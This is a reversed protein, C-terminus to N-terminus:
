GNVTVQAIYATGNAGALGNNVGTGGAVNATVNGSTAGYFVFVLGGGGGGGGPLGSGGLGGVANISGSVINYGYVVVEGGGGGGGGGSYGGGGGGAGYMYALPTVYIPPRGVASTIWWDSLGQLIYTVMANPSSFSNITVNGGAGAAYGTGGGGRDRICM